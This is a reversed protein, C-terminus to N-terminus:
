GQRSQLMQRLARIHEPTTGCCGGVVQAGLKLWREVEAAYRAPPWEETGTFRPFFGAKWSPPDYRGIHAYAGIPGARHRRLEGLARTLDAPPACNLLVVEPGLPEVARVAESLGEGSLLRGDGGVVFSVWVPLGTERAAEAAVRAERATNMNELLLFDVGGALQKATEAHEERLEKEPPALDPRYSHQLPAIAGAIAVARGSRERAQRAVAVARATLEAARNELGPPGIRRMHELSHFLNLYSRRTLHLTNTTIVDAGAAIYDAHVAEVVEPNRELGHSRWYVGRRFIETGVGGDLLITGKHALADRLRQYATM